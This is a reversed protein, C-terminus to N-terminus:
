DQADARNTVDRALREGATWAAVVGLSLLPLAAMAALGVFLGSAAESDGASWALLWTVATLVLALCAGPVAAAVGVVLKRGKSYSM